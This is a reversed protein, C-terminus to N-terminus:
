RAGRSRDRDRRLGLRARHRARVCRRESRDSRRLRALDPSGLVIQAPEQRRRCRAFTRRRDLGGNAPDRRHPRGRADPGASFRFALRASRRRRPHPGRRRRGSSRADVLASRRRTRPRRPSSNAAPPRCRVRETGAGALAVHRWEGDEVLVAADLLSALHSALAKPGGGASPLARSGRPSTSLEDNSMVASDIM